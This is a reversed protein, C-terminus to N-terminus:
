SKNKELEEMQRVDDWTVVDFKAVLPNALIAQIQADLLKELQAETAVIMEDKNGM